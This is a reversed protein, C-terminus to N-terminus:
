KSRRKTTEFLRAASYGVLTCEITSGDALVQKSASNEVASLHNLLCALEKAKNSHMGMLYLAVVFDKHKLEAAEKEIMSSEAEMVKSRQTGSASDAQKSQRQRTHTHYYVKSHHYILPVFKLQVKHCMGYQITFELLSAPDSLM